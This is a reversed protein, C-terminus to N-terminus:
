GCSAVGFERNETAVNESDKKRMVHRNSKAASAIIQLRPNERGVQEM